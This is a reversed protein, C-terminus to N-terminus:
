EEPDPPPPETLPVLPVGTPKGVRPGLRLRAQHLGEKCREEEPALTLCRVYLKEARRWNAPGGREDKLQVEAQATITDLEQQEPSVEVPPTPAPPRVAEPEPPPSSVAEKAGVPLPPRPPAAVGPEFSPEPARAPAITVPPVPVEATLSRSLLWAGGLLILSISLM